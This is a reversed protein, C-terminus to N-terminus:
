DDTEHAGRLFSTLYFVAFLVFASFLWITAGSRPWWLAAAFFAFAFASAVLAYRRHAIPTM